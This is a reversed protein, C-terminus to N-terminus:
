RTNILNRTFFSTVLREYRTSDANWTQTHEAGPFEEYQIPWGIRPGLAALDRNMAPPAERDAAGQLLLTPPRYAPPYSLLDLQDMRQGTRWDIIRNVLGVLVDPMGMQEGGVYEAVRPMSSTPCDLLVASVRGALPSRALFQGVIQGGNSQGFLAVRRAGHDFAYRVASEVDRWESGGLHLLGDPSAPAGEDNRYTVYLLSLGIRHLAPASPALAKRRGNQGHVAIVWADGAPVLWAPAPGLETPVMVEAYDLGLTTKPDSPMPASVYVATGLTPTSGGLLPREVSGPTQALVTGVRAAGGDWSLWYTGPRSASPNNATIVVHRGAPADRVALVTESHTGRSPTIQQAAGWWCLGVVAVGALALVVLGTVGAARFGRRRESVM